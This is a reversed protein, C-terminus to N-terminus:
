GSPCPATAKRQSRVEPLRRKFLPTICVAALSPQGLERHGTNPYPRVHCSIKGNVQRM